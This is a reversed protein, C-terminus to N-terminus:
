LPQIIQAYGNGIFDIQKNKILAKLKSILDPRYENIIELSIGSIQIAFKFKKEALDLLPVLCKELVSKQDEPSLASFTLNM